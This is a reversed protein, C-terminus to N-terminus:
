ARSLLPHEVDRGPWKVGPFSGTGMAYSLPHAGLGANVPTSFRAGWRCEIGPGDLGYCTAIGDSINRGVLLWGMGCKGKFYTYLVTYTFNLNMFM